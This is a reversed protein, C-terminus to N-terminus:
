VKSQYMEQQLARITEALPDALLYKLGTEKVRFDKRNGKGLLVRIGEKIAAKPHIYQSLQYDPVPFPIDLAALCALYPFSVGAVYSGRLSGWFRVNVELIKVQNERTDYFMDINAYGSWNLASLFRQGVGLVDDRKIFKIATAPGYEQPNPIFGRQMTFALIEGERCLVNLGIVFGPLCSQVIYQDKLKERPQEELFNQLQHLDDFRRMGEGGWGISPKILVPFELTLLKREFDQDLTCLVTAPGPIDNEQMFQALSWKNNAIELSELEPVPPVALWQSLERRKTAAFEIGQTEVPLLVDIHTQRVVEAVANFLEEDNAEMQKFTYTSCYRSFRASAWRDRSLIHLKVNPTHAFGHMVFLTLNSEGDPILVSLSDAM